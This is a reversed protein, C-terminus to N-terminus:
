LLPLTAPISPDFEANPDKGLQYCYQRLRLAWESDPVDSTFVSPDIPKSVHFHLTKGRMRFMEDPLFITEISAKIHFFKRMKTWSLTRKTLSGDTYVIVIPMKQKKAISVFTKKWVYDFVEGFSLVRSCYGAPYFLLSRKEDMAKRLTSMDKNFCCTKQLPKLFRLFSQTLLQIDEKDEILYRLLLMSEPGGYPHNSAVMIPGDIAGLEALPVGKVEASLELYDAVGILFEKPDDNFHEAFFGNLEALHLLKDFPKYIFRPLRGLIPSVKGGLVKLDIPQYTEM